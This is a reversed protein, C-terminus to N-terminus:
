ALWPYCPTRRSAAERPTSAFESLMRPSTSATCLTTPSTPTCGSSEGGLDRLVRNSTESVGRLEEESLRGAGPLQREIVFKPM